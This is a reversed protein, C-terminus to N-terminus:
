ARAAAEEALSARLGAACNPYHPKFGLQESLRRTEVRRAEMLFSWGEASLRPRALEDPLVAPAPLGTLQALQQLYAATGTDDGDGVNFLTNAAAPHLLALRLARVLDDVHIRNGPRALAAQPLPDGRRLRDLPLRGPGYIGPVRLVTWEVGAAACASRLTTEAALRRRARPTAPKPATDENVTGGGADGYVGTTSLYVIRRLNAMGRFLASLAQELRPDTEGTSPPPVLYALHTWDGHVPLPAPADLNWDASRWATITSFASNGPSGPNSGAEASPEESAMKLFRQGTYGAGLLLLKPLSDVM